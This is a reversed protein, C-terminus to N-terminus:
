SGKRSTKYRGVSNHAPPKRSAAVTRTYHPMLIFVQIETHNRIRFRNM